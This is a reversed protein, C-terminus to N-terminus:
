PLDDVCVDAGPMMEPTVFMEGYQKAAREPTMGFRFPWMECWASHVGDCPCYKVYRRLGGSCEVCHRRVTHVTVNTLKSM